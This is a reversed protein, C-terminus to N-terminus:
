KRKIYLYSSYGILGLATGLLVAFVYHKPEKFLKKYYGIVLCIGVSLVCIILPDIIKKKAAMQDYKFLEYQQIMNILVTGYNPATAYGATKLGNAWDKYNYVDLLFLGKYRSNNLLFKAHDNFSDVPSNYKRFYSQITIYGNNVYEKTGILYKEGKWSSDAKIGFFNNANKTLGSEGWGSELAAQALTISAPVGFLIQTQMAYNKYKDFFAQQKTM